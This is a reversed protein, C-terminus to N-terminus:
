KYVIICEAFNIPNKEPFAHVILLLFTSEKVNQSIRPTAFITKLIYRDIFEVQEKSSNDSCKTDLISPMTHCHSLHM